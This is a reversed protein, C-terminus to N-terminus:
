NVATETITVDAQERLSRLFSKLLEDGSAAALAQALMAQNM